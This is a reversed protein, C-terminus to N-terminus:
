DLKKELKTLKRDMRYAFFSLGLIIVLIVVAVIYIKGDSRFQDAMEVSQGTNQAMVQMPAFLLVLKFILWNRLKLRKMLYM